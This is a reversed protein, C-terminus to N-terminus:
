ATHKGRDSADLMRDRDSAQLHGVVRTSWYEPGNCLNPQFADGALRAAAALAAMLGQHGSAVSLSASCGRSTIKWCGETPPQGPAQFARDGYGDSVAEQPPAAPGGLRRGRIGAAVLAEDLRAL